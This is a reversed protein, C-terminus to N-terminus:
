HIRIKIIKNISIKNEFSNLIIEEMESKFLGRNKSNKVSIRKFIKTGDEFTISAFVNIESIFM